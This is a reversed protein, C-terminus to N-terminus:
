RIDTDALAHGRNSGAKSASPEHTLDSAIAYMGKKRSSGFVRDCPSPSHEASEGICRMQHSEPASFRLFGSSPKQTGGSDIENVAHFQSVGGRPVMKVVSRNPTREGSYPTRERSRLQAFDLIAAISGELKIITEGRRGGPYVVV